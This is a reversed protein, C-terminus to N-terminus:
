RHRTMRRVVTGCLTGIARVGILFLERLSRCARLRIMLREAFSPMVSHDPQGPVAAKDDVYLLGSALGGQFCRLTAGALTLDKQEPQHMVVSAALYLRDRASPPSIKTLFAYEDGVPIRSGPGFNEPWPCTVGDLASRRVAINPGWPYQNYPYRLDELGLDHEAALLNKLNFSQELWQPLQSKEICIRGGFVNIDPHEVLAQEWVTLWDERPTIDDDVVILLEGKASFVGKNLARSKGPVPECLLNVPLKDTYRAVIDPTDDSSGNDVIVLEWQRPHDIASMRQLFRALTASRNRTALVVSISKAAQNM